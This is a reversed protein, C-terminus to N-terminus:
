PACQRCRQIPQLWAVAVGAHFGHEAPANTREMRHLQTAALLSGLVALLLAQSTSRRQSSCGSRASIESSLHVVQSRRRARRRSVAAEGARAVCGHDGAPRDASGASTSSTRALAAGQVAVWPERCVRRAAADEDEDGGSFGAAPERERRSSSWLPLISVGSVTHWIVQAEHVLLRERRPPHAQPPTTPRAPVMTPRLRAEPGRRREECAGPARGSRSGDSRTDGAVRARRALAAGSM